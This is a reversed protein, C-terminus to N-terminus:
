FTKAFDKSMIIFKINNKKSDNHGSHNKISNKHSCARFNMNKKEALETIQEVQLPSMKISKTVSKKENENKM